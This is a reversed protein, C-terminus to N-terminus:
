QGFLSDIRARVGPQHMTVQHMDIEQEIVAPLEQRVRRTLHRKLTVLSARPKEALQQALQLAHSLVQHRPLVAFPVGRAGLAEGRYNSATLLMEQALSTGLKEPLIYTAGMGPTFGYKMFNTTYISERSLVVIDSYLGMVFGGGIAHGQMASIVPISCELPLSYVNADTFSGSADHLALLSEKTGGTAFYTDYGTLVVAKYRDTSAIREYARFLGDILAPSFANKNLRDQMTLLVVGQDLEAFTVVQDM